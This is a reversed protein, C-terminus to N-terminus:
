ARERRITMAIWAVGAVFLALATLRLAIMVQGARGPPLEGGFCILRVLSPAAAIEGARARDIARRVAAAPPDLGLLYSSVRGDPAVVAVGVSHVFQGLRPEWRYRFGLADAVRRVQAAPGTAFRWAATAPYRQAYDARAALAQAATERPDISLTLVTAEAPAIRADAMAQALGALTVGCISPCRLYDLAVVAPRHGLLQGLSAPRGHEDRLAADLPLTAGPRPAYALADVGAITAAAPAAAALGLWLAVRAITM